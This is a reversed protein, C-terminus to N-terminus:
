RRRASYSRRGYHIRGSYSCREHDRRGSCICRERGRRGSYSCREHGRRGSYICRECHGHGGYRGALTPYTPVLRERGLGRPMHSGPSPKPPRSGMELSGWVFDNRPIRGAAGSRRPAAPRTFWPRHTYSPSSFSLPAALHSAGSIARGAEPGPVATFIAGWRRGKPGPVATFIAAWRGTRPIDPEDPRGSRWFSPASPSSPERVQGM